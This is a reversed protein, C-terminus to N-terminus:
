KAFYLEHRKSQGSIFSKLIRTVIAPNASKELQVLEAGQVSSHQASVESPWYVQSDQPSARSVSRTLSQKLAKKSRELLSKEGRGSSAFVPYSSREKRVYILLWFLNHPIPESIEQEAREVALAEPGLLHLHFM